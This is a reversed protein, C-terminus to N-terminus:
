RNLIRRFWPKKKKDSQYPIPEISQFSKNEIINISNNVLQEISCQVDLKKIEEITKEMCPGRGKATYSHCDSGILHVLNHKLLSIACKKISDGFYGLFSGGNCQILAGKEVLKFIIQPQKRIYSYREPHAIIPIIGKIMLKYLIEETYLPIEEMPLEILLYRGNNITPVKKELVYQPLLPHIFSECGILIELDLNNDKCWYNLIKIKEELEDIDQEIEKLIFHPTAVIYKIGQKASIECIKKAEEISNAGDDVEYLVHCHIDIM